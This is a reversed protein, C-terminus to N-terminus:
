NLKHKKEDFDVDPLDAVANSIQVFKNLARVTRTSIKTNNHQIDHIISNALDAAAEVYVELEPQSNM